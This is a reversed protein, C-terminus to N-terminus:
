AVGGGARVRAHEAPLQRLPAGQRQPGGGLDHQSGAGRDVRQRADDVQAGVLRRQVRDGGRQQNAPAYLVVGPGFADVIEDV